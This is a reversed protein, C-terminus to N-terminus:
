ARTAARENERRPEENPQPKCPLTARVGWWRLPLPPVTQGLISSQRGTGLDPDPAPLNAKFPVPPGFIMSMDPLWSKKIAQRLSKM